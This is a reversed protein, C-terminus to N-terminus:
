KKLVPTASPKASMTAPAANVTPKPPPADTKATPHQVPRIKKPAPAAQTTTSQVAPVQHQVPRIKKINAPAVPKGEKAAPKAADQAFACASFIMATLVLTFQKKM